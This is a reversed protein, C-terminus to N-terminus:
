TIENKTEYLKDNKKIHSYTLSKHKGNIKRIMDWIKKM